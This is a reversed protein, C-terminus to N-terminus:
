VGRRTIVYVVIVVVFLVSSFDQFMLKDTSCCPKRDSIMKM